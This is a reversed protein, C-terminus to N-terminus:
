KQVPPLTYTPTQPHIRVYVSLARPSRGLPRSLVGLPGSSDLHFLDQCIHIEYIYVFYMTIHIYTGTPPILDQVRVLQLHQKEQVYKKKQFLFLCVFLFHSVFSAFTFGLVGIWM